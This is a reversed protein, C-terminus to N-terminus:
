PYIYISDEPLLLIEELQSQREPTVEFWFPTNQPLNKTTSWDVSRTGWAAAPEIVVRLKAVGFLRCICSRPRKHLVDILGKLETRKASQSIASELADSIVTGNAFPLEFVKGKWHVKVKRHPASITTRLVQQYVKTDQNSTLIRRKRFLLNKAYPELFEFGYRPQTAIFTDEGVCSRTILTSIEAYDTVEAYSALPYCIREIGNISNFLHQLQWEVLHTHDQYLASAGNFSNENDLAIQFSGDTRVSWGALQSAPIANESSSGTNGRAYYTYDVKADGQDGARPWQREAQILNVQVVSTAPCIKRFSSEIKRHVVDWTAAIRRGDFSDVLQFSSDNSSYEDGGIFLKDPYGKGLFCSIPLLMSTAAPLIETDGLTDNKEVFIHQTVNDSPKAIRIIVPVRSGSNPDKSIGVAEILDNIGPRYNPNIERDIMWKLDRASRVSLPQGNFLYKEHFRIAGPHLVLDNGALVPETFTGFIVLSLVLCVRKSAIGLKSFTPCHCVLRTPVLLINM